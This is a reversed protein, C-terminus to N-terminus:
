KMGKFFSTHRLPSNLMKERFICYPAIAYYDLRNEFAKVVEQPANAWPWTAAWEGRSQDKPDININGSSVYYLGTNTQIVNIM